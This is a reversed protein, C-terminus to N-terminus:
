SVWVAFRYSNLAECFVLNGLMRLQGAVDPVLEFYHACQVVWVYQALFVVDITRCRNLEALSCKKM